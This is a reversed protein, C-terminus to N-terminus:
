SREPPIPPIPRLEGWAFASEAIFDQLDSALAGLLQEEDDWIEVGLTSSSGTEGCLDWVLADQDEAFADEDRDEDWAHIPAIWFRAARFEDPRLMHEAVPRFAALVEGVTLVVTM